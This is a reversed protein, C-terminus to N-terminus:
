VKLLRSEQFARNSYVFIGNRWEDPYVCLRSFVGHKVIVDDCIPNNYFYFISYDKYNNFSAADVVYVKVNRFNLRKFNQVAIAATQPCLELGHVKDFPFKLMTRMASGKGCGIDIISDKSEIKLDRLIRELYKNGSPSYHHVLMPDLGVEDSEVMNLFDLGRSKDILKKLHDVIKRRTFSKLKM